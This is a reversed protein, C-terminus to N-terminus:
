LSQAEKAAELEDWTSKRMGTISGDSHEIIIHEEITGNFVDEVSVVKINEM